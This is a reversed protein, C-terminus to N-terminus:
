CLHQLFYHLIRSSRFIDNVILQKILLFQQCNNCCTIIAISEKQLYAQNFATMQLVGPGLCVAGVAGRVGNVLYLLRCVGSIFVSSCIYQLQFENTICSGLYLSTPIKIISYKTVSVLNIACQM